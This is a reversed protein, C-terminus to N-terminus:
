SRTTGASPESTTITTTAGSATYTGGATVEAFNSKATATSAAPLGATSLFIKFTDADFDHIGNVLDLKFKDLITISGQAM